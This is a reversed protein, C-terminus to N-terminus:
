ATPGDFDNNGGALVESVVLCYAQTLRNVREQLLGLISLRNPDLYEARANRVKECTFLTNLPEKTDMVIRRPEIFFLGVSAATKWLAIIV